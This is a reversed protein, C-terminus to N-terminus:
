AKAATGAWVWPVCTLKKLHQEQPVVEEGVLTPTPPSVEGRWLCGQQADGGAKGVDNEREQHLM